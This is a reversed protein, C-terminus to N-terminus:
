AQMMAPPAVLGGHVSHEAFERDTYVPNTDALAETWNNVMAANVPDRAQRPAREGLAALRDAEARLHAAADTSTMAAGEAIGAGPHRDTRAPDRESRWRLHSGPETQGDHGAVGVVGGDGTRGPRRAHRCDGRTTSRGTPDTGLRVGEHRIRRGRRGALGRALVRGALQATRERATCRLHRGARRV